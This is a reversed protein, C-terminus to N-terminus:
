KNQLSFRQLDQEAVLRVAQAYTRHEVPLLREAITDATDGAIIPVRAQLIVPGEDMEPVVYHVTCGTETRGADLAQQQPHLGKFDPLLSPHINVILGQWGNVFEATLLRMFGALCVLDVKAGRLCRDLETEFAQKTPYQRHPVAIATVGQERAIALGAADAVNSIVLAVEAPFGSNRCAEILAAMNSGRGSILIGLRLKAM